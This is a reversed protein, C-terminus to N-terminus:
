GPKGSLLLITSPTEYGGIAGNPLLKRALIRCENVKEVLNDVM